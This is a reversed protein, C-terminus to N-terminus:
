ELGPIRFFDRANAYAIDRVMGGALEYDAPIEGGEMWEGVLGCLIRRFYEHRPFSLFSRSDTLMGVFRSLLGVDALAKMQERMGDRHDNFWWASGFQVKGAIKGDQFGGAMVALMANWTPNLTYLVVRPLRGEAALTDLFDALPRAAAGDGIADYGTDPGLRTNMGSNIGRLAGFHLQMTWGRKEDMLGVEALLATKLAEAERPELERGKLAKAFAADIERQPLKACVPRELAHDSLRAGLGHFFEHRRDLAAVLDDYSRIEVGSVSGLRALYDKWADPKEVALAKDPRFTPVMVPEGPKRSKAYSAHHSLDDAPDDTTCLGKVKMRSLLSRATFGPDAIRENCAAFIRDASGADLPEEVGFYRRLELHTWHYLPNGLCRPLTAAWARFKELDPAQGTVLEEPVGNARMLRWKYHDGGLWLQTINRYHEDRAIEAPPLHCHFDLIPEAKAYDDFLKRGAEGGLLFGDDMFAKM